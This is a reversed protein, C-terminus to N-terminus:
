DETLYFSEFERNYCPGKTKFIGEEFAKKHIDKLNKFRRKRKREARRLSIFDYTFLLMMVVEIYSCNNELFINTTEVGVYNFKLNQVSNDVNILFFGNMDTKGVEITDNIMIQVYPLSELDETIVRGKITKSQSSAGYISFIFLILIIKFKRM